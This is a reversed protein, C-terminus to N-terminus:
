LANEDAGEKCVIEYVTKVTKEVTEITEIPVLKCTSDKHDGQFTIKFRGYMGDAYKKIAKVERNRSTAKAVIRTEFGLSTLWKQKERVEELKLPLYVVLDYVEESTTYVLTVEEVNVLTALEPERNLLESLCRKHKEVEAVSAMYSAALKRMRMYYFGTLDDENM